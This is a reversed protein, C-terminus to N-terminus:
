DRGNRKSYPIFYTVGTINGEPSDLSKVAGLQVPHNCGGIFTPVQPPNKGLWKAGNSRLIVMGKKDKQWAEVTAKLDDLGALEKKYEIKIDSGAKKITEEFGALVRNAMGSKGVWAVGIDQAACDSAQGFLLTATFLVLVMTMTKKM